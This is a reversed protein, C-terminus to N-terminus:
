GGLYGIKLIGKEMYTGYVEEVNYNDTFSLESPTLKSKILEVKAYFFKDNIRNSFDKRIVKVINYFLSEAKELKDYCYVASYDNFIFDSRYKFRYKIAYM